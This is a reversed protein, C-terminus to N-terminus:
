SIYRLLLASTKNLFEPLNANVREIKDNSDLLFLIYMEYSSIYVKKFLVKANSISFVAEEHELDRFKSFIKYLMTFQPATIEFVNRLDYKEVSSGEIPQKDGFDYESNTLYDALVLGEKNLLLSLYAGSNRAFKELNYDILEKNPSLTSIGSSFARLVSFITFISTLYIEPNEIGTIKTINSKVYDVNQKVIETDIIDEDAKSLVFIISTEQDFKNLRDFIDKLYQFSEEFRKKNRIDIFYFILDAEYLYIQSKKLYKERFVTQGGLDWLFITSGLAQISNVQVGRTPKLGILKSYKRDVALLFSTKGSDDLGAFIIKMKRESTISSFPKKELDLLEQLFIEFHPKIDEWPAFEGEKFINPAISNAFKVIIPKLRNINNYLFSRSNEDVLISFSSAILEGSVLNKLFYFFTLSTFEFDPYPLIAFYRLEGLDDEDSFARDGILLGLNKISIQVYDRYTLRLINEEKAIDAEEDEVPEPFMYIPSPGFKDFASFVFGKIISSELLEKM